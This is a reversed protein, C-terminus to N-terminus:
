SAEKRYAAVIGIFVGYTLTHLPVRFPAGIPAVRPSIRSRSAMGHWTRNTRWWNEFGAFVKLLRLGNQVM